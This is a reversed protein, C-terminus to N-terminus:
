IAKLMQWTSIQVKSWSHPTAHTNRLATPKSWVEQNPRQRSSVPYLQTRIFVAAPGRTSIEMKWMKWRSKWAIRIILWAELMRCMLRGSRSHPRAGATLTWSSHKSTLNQSKLFSEWRITVKPIWTTARSYLKLLLGTSGRAALRISFFSRRIM